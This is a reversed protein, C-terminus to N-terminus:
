RRRAFPRVLREEVWKRDLRMGYQSHEMAQGPDTELAKKYFAIAQARQGQIDALHGRWTLSAFQMMPSSDLEALKELAASAQPYYGSDYLLLGLKLWFLSKEPPSKQAKEFILLPTRVEHTWNLADVIQALEEATPQAPISVETQRSFPKKLREELFSRNMQIRLSSYGKTEGTDYRLAAQYFSLAEARKGSLDKLLGMWGLAAFKELGEKELTSVREFCDFAKEYQDLEYLKSGLRQWILSMQLNEAKVIEYVAPSQESEWGFALIEAAKKSVEPLPDSRMALKKEPDLVVEKLKTPSEFTLVNTDLNRDTIKAQETGDEFVARVPVPMKMTGLRKIKVTSLYGGANPSGEKGEVKYCLYANSRVWQDFFWSLSQGSEKECLAKFERWGLRRGGYLKLAKKYIREFTERGLAADLASIISFGKSHIVINNHDYRIKELYAPPIDVTTDYYMALGNLYNSMWKSRREPDLKRSILYETDVMIGMGIWLWDPNDPDLVWEGWYQHGIEHATIWQWWLLSEAEKFTEQGHIAVIGTAVPYGGWRGRGGPIFTLFKFPYFGLWKKSFSIVDVATGLCVAAAKAGKETALTTILVGEVERSDTKMGKGLSIGFTRAGDNEFRGTRPDLRGSAAVAFGEPTELKVSYSDHVPLGDWWLRPHWDTYSVSFEADEASFELSKHFTAELQIKKGPSLPAPLAYFLPPSLTPKNEPNAPTLTKGASIITLSSSPSLPWDVALIRIAGNSTNKFIITEKGEIIKQSLNIKA